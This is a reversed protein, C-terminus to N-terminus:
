VDDDDDPEEDDPEEPEEIEEDPLYGALFSEVKNRRLKKDNLVEGNDPDIVTFWKSKEFVKLEVISANPFEKTVDIGHENEDPAPTEPIEKKKVVSKIPAPIDPAKATAIAVGDESFQGPVLEFKSPHKAILDEDSPVVSGAKYTIRNGKKDPPGIHNGCKKKLRFLTM